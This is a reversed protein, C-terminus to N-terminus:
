MDEFRVPARRVRASTRQASPGEQLAAREERAARLDQEKQRQEERIKTIEQLGTRVGDRQDQLHQRTAEALRINVDNLESQEKAIRDHLKLRNSADWFDGAYRAREEKNLKRLRAINHLHPLKYGNATALQFVDKESSGVVVFPGDWRPHLKSKRSLPERMVLDGPMIPDNLFATDDRNKALKELADRYRQAAETRYKDLNQVRARRDEKAIQREL